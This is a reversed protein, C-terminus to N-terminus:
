ELQLNVGFSLLVYFRLVLLVYYLPGRLLERCARFYRLLIVLLMEVIAFLHIWICQCHRTFFFFEPKERRTVSKILWEDSALPHGHIVHMNRGKVLFFFFFFGEIM